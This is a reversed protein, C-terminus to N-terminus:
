HSLHKKSVCLKGGRIPYSPGLNEPDIKVAVNSGLFIAFAVLLLPNLGAM